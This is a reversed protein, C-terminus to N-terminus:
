LLQRQQAPSPKGEDAENEAAEDVRDLEEAPDPERHGTARSVSAHLCFLRPTSSPSSLPCHMEFM